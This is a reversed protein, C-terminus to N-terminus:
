SAFISFFFSIDSIIIEKVGYLPLCGGSVMSDVGM